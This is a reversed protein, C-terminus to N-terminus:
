GRPVPTEDLFPVHGGRPSPELARLLARAEHLHELFSAEDELALGSKEERADFMEDVVDDVEDHMSFPLEDDQTIRGILDPVLPGRWGSPLVLALTRLTGEDLAAQLTRVVTNPLHPHTAASAMCLWSGDAPARDARWERFPKGTVRSIGAAVIEGDENAYILESLPLGLAGIAKAMREMVYAADRRTIPEMGFRGGDSPDRALECVLSGYELAMTARLDSRARDLLSHPARDMREQIREVERVQNMVDPDDSRRALKLAGELAKDRNALLAYRAQIAMGSPGLVKPSVRSIADFAREPLGRRALVRSQLYLSRGHSPERALVVDLVKNASALREQMLLAAALDSLEDSGASSAEALVREALRDARAVRFTSILMTAMAAALNGHGQTLVRDLQELVRPLRVNQEHIAREIGAVNGSDVLASLTEDAMESPPIPPPAETQEVEVSGQPLTGQSM